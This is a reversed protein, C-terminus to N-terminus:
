ACGPQANRERDRGTQLLERETGIPLCREGATSFLFRLYGLEAALPSVKVQEMELLGAPLGWKEPWDSGYKTTLADCIKLRIENVSPLLLEAQGRWVMKQVEVRHGTYSLLSPHVELGYEPTYVLRGSALISLLQKPIEQGISYTTGTEGKVLDMFTGLESVPVTGDLSEWYDVLGRIIRCKDEVVDSWIREALQVDSSALSPLM